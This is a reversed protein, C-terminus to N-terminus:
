KLFEKLEDETIIKKKLLLKFLAQVLKEVPYKKVLDENEEMLRETLVRDRETFVV